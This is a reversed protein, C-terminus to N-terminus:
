NFKALQIALQLSSGRLILDVIPDSTGDEGIFHGRHPKNFTSAAFTAAM